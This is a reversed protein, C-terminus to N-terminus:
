ADLRRLHLVHDERVGPRGEPSTLEIRDLEDRVIEWEEDALQLAVLNEEPSQVTLNVPHGPDPMAPHWSPVSWHSVVLLHGGPAVAEAAHRLIREREGPVAVPSHLFQASVLSFRGSPFDTALDHQAFRVREGHGIREAHAQAREVAIQSADIGLVDWGHQALWIADAGEACGLDLATGPTLGETETILIRNVPGQEARTHEAYFGDWFVPATPM